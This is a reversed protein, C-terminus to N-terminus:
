RPGEGGAAEVIRLMSHLWLRAEGPGSFRRNAEEGVAQWPFPEAAMLARGEAVASAREEPNASAAYRRAAEEDKLGELDADPFNAVLFQWLAPYAARFSLMDM